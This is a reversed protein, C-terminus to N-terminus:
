VPRKCKDRSEPLSITLRDSRQVCHVGLEHRIAAIGDFASGGNLLRHL